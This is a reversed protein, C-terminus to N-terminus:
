RPWDSTSGSDWARSGLLGPPVPALIPRRVARVRLMRHQAVAVGEVGAAEGVHELMGHQDVRQAM